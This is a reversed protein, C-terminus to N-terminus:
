SYLKLVLAKENDEDDVLNNEDDVLNETEEIPQQHREKAAHLIDKIVWNPYNNGRFVSGIYKLEKELLNPTCYILYAREIIIKLTGRKWIDPACYNCNLYINTNTEKRYM